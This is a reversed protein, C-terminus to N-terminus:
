TIDNKDYLSVPLIDALELLGHDRGGAYDAGMIPTRFRGANQRITLTMTLRTGTPLQEILVTGEHALAAARVIVMGLGIGHSSDELTPQRLYQSYISGLMTGSIGKGSDTFSLHLKNSHRTASVELTGGEPTHKIANSVINYVAREIKERDMLMVLPQQLNNLKLTVGSQACLVSAKELLEHLLASADTMEMRGTSAFDAADSMNGIRRLIQHLSRNFLAASDQSKPNDKQQQHLHDAAIILSSLPERLDKAALALAQLAHAYEEQDLVFVSEHGINVVSACICRGQVLLQLQLCGEQLAAYEEEGTKLLTAVPTGTSVSLRSAASNVYLVHGDKVSFAPQDMMSLILQTTNSQEM